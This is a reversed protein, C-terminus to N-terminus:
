YLSTQKKRNMQYQASTLPVYNVSWGKTTKYETESVKDIFHIFQGDTPGM